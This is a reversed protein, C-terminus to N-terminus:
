NIKSTKQAPSPDLMKTISRRIFAGPYPECLKQIAQVISFQLEALAADAGRYKAAEASDSADVVKQLANNRMKGIVEAVKSLSTISGFDSTGAPAKSADVHYFGELNKM